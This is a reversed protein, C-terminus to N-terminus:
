EASTSRRAPSRGAGQDHEGDGPALCARSQPPDPGGRGALPQSRQGALLSGEGGARTASAPTSPRRRVARTSRRRRVGCHISRDPHGVPVRASSTGGSRSGRARPRRRSSGGGDLRRDRGGLALEHADEVRGSLRDPGIPEPMEDSREEAARDGDAREDDPRGAAGPGPRGSRAPGSRSDAPSSRWRSPGVGQGGCRPRRPDTSWAPRTIGTAPSAIAQTMTRRDSRAAAPMGAPVPIVADGAAGLAFGYGSM